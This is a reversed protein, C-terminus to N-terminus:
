NNPAGKNVWAVIQDIKCADMKGTKPMGDSTYTVCNVLKGNDAYPKLNSYIDLEIGSTNNTGTHCGVCNSSIIASITGSYTVNTTDCNPQVFRYLTEENDNYCSSILSTIAIFITLTILAKKM